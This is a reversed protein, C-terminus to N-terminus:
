GEHVVAGKLIFQPRGEPTLGPSDSQVTWGQGRLRESLGEIAQISAASGEISLAVPSLALRSIEIGLAGAEALARALRGEMGDAELANRFPQTEEDRRSIAREVLLSEQGRPINEGAIAQAAATLQRQLSEARHRHLIAEGYNLALVLLAAAVVGLYARKLDRDQVRRLAPHTRDGTKFNVGADEAARRALARALFSAPSRHTEHRFAIEAPLGQRLRILQAEDEAGPGAWWLDMEAGGAEALHAVLIQRARGAWLSGFAQPGGSTEALPSARLVHAALFDAGRGRAVTVHDAGLWVVARPMGARAPPAEAIHQDWLALAEADCHTPDFGAARCAEDFAALDSKRIAAAVAVTGGNEIRGAGYSCAAGEVPFPLEVDLLSAWVKEAKPLSAFPAQLRRIVTQAAPACVALAATGAEVERALAQLARRSEESGSAAVLATQAAGRRVARVLVLRGASVELGYATKYGDAM